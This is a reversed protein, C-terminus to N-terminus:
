LKTCPNGCAPDDMSASNQVFFLESQPITWNQMVLWTTKIQIQPSDSFSFSSVNLPTGNFTWYMHPQPYGRMQCEVQLRENLKKKEVESFENKSKVFPAKDLVSSVVCLIIYLVLRSRRFDASYRVSLFRLTKFITFPPGKPSKSVESQQLIDFFKFPSGKSISVIEFFLRVTGFFIWLPVRYDRGTKYRVNFISYIPAKQM